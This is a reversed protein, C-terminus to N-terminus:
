KSISRFTVNPMYCFVVPQKRNVWITIFSSSVKWQKKLPHKLSKNELTSLKPMLWVDKLQTVQLLTIQKSVKKTMNCSSLQLCFPKCFAKLFTLLSLQMRQKNLLSKNKAITSSKGVLPSPQTTCSMGSTLMSKLQPQVLPSSLM